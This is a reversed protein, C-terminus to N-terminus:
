KKFFFPLKVCDSDEKSAKGYNEIFKTITKYTEVHRQM